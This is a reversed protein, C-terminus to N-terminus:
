PQSYTHATPMAPPSSCGLRGSGTRGADRAHSPNLPGATRPDASWGGASRAASGRANSRRAPPFIGGGTADSWAGSTEDDIEIIQPEEGDEPDAYGKFRERDIRGSADYLSGDILFQQGDVHSLV